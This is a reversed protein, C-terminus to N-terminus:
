CVEANSVIEKRTILTLGLRFSISSDKSKLDWESRAICEGGCQARNYRDAHRLREDLHFGYGLFACDDPGLIKNDSLM